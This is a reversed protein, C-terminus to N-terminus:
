RAAVVTAAWEGLQDGLYLVGRWRTPIDALGHHAGLLGGAIAGNTDADGGLATVRVVGEEFDSTHLLAWVALRFSWLVFGGRPGMLREPSATTAGDEIADRVASAPMQRITSEVAAQPDAGHILLAALDCYAICTETCTPHAHTIASIARAEARRRNPDRLRAVAVPMTRMLSGNAQSAEDRRGSSRPDGGRDLRALADRTTAGIDTPGARYWDLMRRAAATVPDFSDDVYAQAVAWTLDTDDTPQGPEWGFHGGGIIERLGGPYLRAITAADQFELPAGLADGAHVGM